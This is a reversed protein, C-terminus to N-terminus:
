RLFEQMHRDIAEQLTGEPKLCTSPFSFNENKALEQDMYKFLHATKFLNIKQGNIEADFRDFKNDDLHHNFHMGLFHDPIMMVGKSSGIEPAPQNGWCMWRNDVNAFPYRFLRDRTSLVQQKIAYVMGHYYSREESGPRKKIVLFWCMAPIPVKYNEIREDGRRGEASADYTVDRVHAPTTIVYLERDNSSAYFQTGWQSPLLPTQLKRDKTLVEQIAQLNTQKVSRVGDRVQTIQISQPEIEIVMKNDTAM